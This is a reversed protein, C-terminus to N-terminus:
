PANKALDRAANVLWRRQFAEAYYSSVNDGRNLNRRMSEEVDCNIALVEVRYGIAAVSDILEQVPEAKAGIVETVINRRESLARHAVKTGIVELAEKFADPFNLSGDGRSLHHFIEAADIVVYGQSYEQKRLYTKGVAVGGMLIVLRPSDGAALSSPEFLRDVEATVDIESNSPNM